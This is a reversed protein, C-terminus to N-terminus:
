MKLDHEATERPRELDDSDSDSDPSKKKDKKSKTKNAKTPHRIQIGEEEDSDEFENDSGDEVFKKKENITKQKTLKETDDEAEHQETKKTKKEIFMLSLVM